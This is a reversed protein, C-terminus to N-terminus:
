REHAILKDVIKASQISLPIGGGPHVTGGCFYLKPYSRSFNPHRQLAAMKPNSSAGYLAGKFSGTDLEIGSPTWIHETTIHKLIETELYTELQQVIVKKLAAQAAEDLEIGAPVNIMVFWNEGGQPADERNVKSSIHVYITLDKPVQQHEFILQFEQEYDKSFFINHLGLQPFTKDVGWYFILASSSREQEEYKAALKNDKLVKQYFSVCDIACVVRQATYWEGAKVKYRGKEVVCHETLQGLKFEVGEEIALQYLGKVIAQMGKEPFFTGVNQELHPIMSLIGSAKYPNSGNYTAYRDFIQVLKPDKLQKQNLQHLSSGIHTPLSKPLVKVLSRWPLLSPKQIANELFFQGISQYKRASQELYAAVRDDGILLKEKLEKKLQQVDTYFTFQTQDSFFYRCSEEQRQYQYYDQPDKDFLSYLENVLHPMTFLSPGTDWSYGQSQYRNMKGGVYDNKEIVLVQQGRKRLRLATAIGAIGAGVIITNYMLRKKCPM